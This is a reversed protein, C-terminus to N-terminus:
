RKAGAATYPGEWGASAISWSRDNGTITFTTKEGDNTVAPQSIRFAGLPAYETTNSASVYVGRFLFLENGSVPHLLDTDYVPILSFDTITLTCTRRVKATEDETVSGPSDQDLAYSIDKLIVNKPSRVEAKVVVDISSSDFAAKAAPSFGTYVM